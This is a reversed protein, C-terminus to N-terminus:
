SFFSEFRRSISGSSSLTTCPPRGSSIIASSTSLSASAVSTTFLSRPVILTAATLAGPNPSRRLSISCSM